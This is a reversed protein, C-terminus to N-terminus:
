REARDGELEKMLEHFPAMPLRPPPSASVVIPPTLCGTRVLQELTPASTGTQPNAGVLDQLLSQALEDQRKVPLKSAQEFARTLLETM